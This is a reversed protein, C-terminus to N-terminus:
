PAAVRAPTNRSARDGTGLQGRSNNGWCYANGDKTVGCTFELGASLSAFALGGAVARPRHTCGERGDYGCPEPADDGIGLRGGDARGWCYAAGNAALGCTHFGTGVAVKTLSVGGVPTPTRTLRQPPAGPGSQGYANNGWCEVAGGATVACVHTRGASLAVYRNGSEVRLPSPNAGYGVAESSGLRDSSGHGWCYAAGDQQLACAYGSGVAVAVVERAVPAPTTHADTDTSGIGLEGSENRGWCYLVHAATVGCTAGEGASLSSFTLAGAVRVPTASDDTSGDGLQGYQNSGWCYAEGRVTLGCAHYSRNNPCSEEPRNPDCM